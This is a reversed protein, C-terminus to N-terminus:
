CVSTQEAELIMALFSCVDTMDQLRPGSMRLMDVANRLAVSAFSRLFGIPSWVLDSLNYM